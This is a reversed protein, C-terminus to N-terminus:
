LYFRMSIKGWMELKKWLPLTVEKGVHETEEQISCDLEKGVNRTKEKHFLSSGAVSEKWITSGLLYAQFLKPVGTTVRSLM